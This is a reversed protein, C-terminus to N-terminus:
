PTGVGYKYVLKAGLDGASILLSLGFCAVLFYALRVWIGDTKLFKPLILQLLTFSVFYWMVLHANDAHQSLTMEANFPPSVTDAASRGTLVSVVASLSGLIYLWLRSKTLWEPKVFVEALSALVALSLLAIPFHIILPHANPEWDPVLDM